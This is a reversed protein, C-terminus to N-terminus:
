EKALADLAQSLGKTSFILKIDRGSADKFEIRGPDTRGRLRKAMDDKLVTDSVCGGPFCRQWLTDSLVGGAEEAAFKPPSTLTVNTPLVLTIRLPDTRQIRGIAIQAIPQQQGQPVIALAIECVRQANAIQPVRECRLTWDGFSATTRDPTSALGAPSTTQATQAYTQTTLILVLLFSGSIRHRM